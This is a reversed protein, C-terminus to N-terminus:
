STGCACTCQPSCCLQTQPLTKAHCNHGYMHRRYARRVIVTGKSDRRDEKTQAFIRNKPQEFCLHCATNDLKELPQQQPVIYKTTKIAHLPNVSVATRECVSIVNYIKVVIKINIHCQAGYCLVEGPQLAEERWGVRWAQKTVIAHKTVLAYLPLQEQSGQQQKSGRHM